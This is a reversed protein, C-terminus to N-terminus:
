EGNLDTLVYEYFENELIQRVQEVDRKRLAECINENELALCPEILYDGCLIMFETKTM